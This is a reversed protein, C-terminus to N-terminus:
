WNKKIGRNSELLQKTERNTDRRRAEDTMEQSITEQGIKSLQDNIQALAKIQDQLFNMKNGPKAACLIANVKVFISM